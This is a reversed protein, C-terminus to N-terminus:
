ESQGHQNEEQPSRRRLLRAITTPHWRTGRAAQPAVADLRSAIERHSLGEARLQHVLEVAGQEDPDVELHLGDGALRYGYPIQGTREGRSRKVALAQRTRARLLEREYQAFLDLIGRLLVAEPGHGNVAGTATAITAGKREVLRTLMAAIVVDRALRDRKAVILVDGRQLEDLAALFGPRKELQSGGSVGHDEYVASLEAENHGCWRTIHERQAGLGLHQDDTSVRIYGIARM